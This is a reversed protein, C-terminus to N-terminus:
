FEVITAGDGGNERSAPSFAKCIGSSSLYERVLNKITGMGHGHIITVHKIGKVIAQSLYNELTILAEESNMGRLDCSIKVKSTPETHINLSIPLIKKKSARKKKLSGKLRNIEILTEINGLAVRVKKKGAPNELLVGTTGYSEILVPDGEKLKKPLVEWESLDDRYASLPLRGMEGLQRETKRFKSIDLNGKIDNMIKRVQDKAERVALQIRKSKELNFKKEKEQLTETLELQQRAINNLKLNTTQLTEKEKILEVRQQTLDKLVLDARTDQLQYIERAREVIRTHLGLKEAIDIAASHGPVGFILRYTPTQSQTDFETCANLFGQRTQALLKLALYHTSVLTTVKKDNLETLVAEALSAGEQPDTAIGLEDLLILSGSAAHSIIHIIKKLHASFTSLSLEINQDDGIDAYVEPYFPIKSGKGVPLFLGARAMLSMLGVTKLTVTKGGTNPGSIIIVHTSQDWNIDNPIVNHGNLILEPNLANNLQLKGGPEIPCQIARMSKALRARAHIFDMEVLAEMSSSISEGAFIVQRTLSQLINKKEREVTLRNIKLQNNLPVISSPEVYLTQGSGSSDHVIGEIQSRKESKVPIVIRGERETHYSDQIAEKYVEGLFIKEVKSELKQKASTVERIAQKLEPSANEKIEGEDDICKELEKFLSPLPDLDNSLLKLLPFENQKEISNHVNRIIRLLKLVSLCKFSGLIEREKAEKIIPLFDDFPNIPFLHGGSLLEVMETTKDLDNNSSHIDSHPILSKCLNITVPSCAYSALAKQILPWGLLSRSKELLHTQNIKVPDADLNM